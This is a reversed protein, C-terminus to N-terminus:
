KADESFEFVKQDNHWVEMKIDYLVESCGFVRLRSSNIQIKGNIEGNEGDVYNAELKVEEGNGREEKVRHSVFRVERFTVDKSLGITEYLLRNVSVNRHNMVSENFLYLANSSISM